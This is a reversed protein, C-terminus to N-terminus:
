STQRLTSPAINGDEQRLSNLEDLFLKRPIPAVRPSTFFAIQYRSRLEERTTKNEPPIVLQKGNAFKILSPKTSNETLATVLDWLNTITKGNAEVVRHSECLSGRSLAFNEYGDTEESALINQLVVIECLDTDNSLNTFDYFMAPVNSNDVITKSGTSYHGKFTDMLSQTCRVFVFGGNKGSPQIHYKLSKDDRPGLLSRGLQETLKIQIKLTELANGSKRQIVFELSDLYKKRQFLYLHSIPHELEQVQVNGDAQIPHGDIELIIDGEQLCNQACSNQPVKSVYIGTLENGLLVPEMGLQARFSPNKLSQWQFSVHPVTVYDIFKANRLKGFRNYNEICQVVVCAPIFYGVNSLSSAGQSVIGICEEAGSDIVRTIPGGSNGPNIPASTQITIGPLRSLAIQSIETRSIHGKTFSLGKGGAPYGYANVETSSPQFAVNIELPKTKKLILDQADSSTAQLIAVDMIPDVWVQKVPLETSGQNFKVKLYTANLVAHANTVLYVKEGYKIVTVTASSKSPQGISWATTYNTTQKDVELKLTSNTLM